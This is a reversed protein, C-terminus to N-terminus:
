DRKIGNAMAYALDLSLRQQLNAALSRAGPPPRVWVQAIKLRM